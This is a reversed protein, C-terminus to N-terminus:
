IKTNRIKRFTLSMRGNESNSQPISHQWIKQIEQPMYILSGTALEYDITENKDEIKRFRLVRTEGLSIIVIGTKDDIIDIQDSHFGMKSRGNPYFNILCNNPKFGFRVNIKDCLIEIQEPMPKDPYSIQSYNYAVGFSATMRAKMREDWEIKNRLEEFLIQSKPAFNKIQTIENM